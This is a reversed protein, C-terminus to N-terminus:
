ARTRANPAPRTPCRFGNPGGAKTKAARGSCITPTGSEPIASSGETWANRVRPEATNWGAEPIMGPSNRRPRRMVGVWCSGSTTVRAQRRHLQLPTRPPPRCCRWRRVWQESFSQEASQDHECCRQSGRTVGLAGSPAPRKASDVHHPKSSASADTRVDLHGHRFVAM